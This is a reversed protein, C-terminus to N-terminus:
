SYVDQMYTNMNLFFVNYMTCGKKVNISKGRKIKVSNM